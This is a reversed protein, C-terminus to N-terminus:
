KVSIVVCKRGCDDFTVYTHNPTYTDSGRTMMSVELREDKLHEPLNNLEKIWERVTM